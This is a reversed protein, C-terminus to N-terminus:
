HGKFYTVAALVGASVAVFWKVISMLMKGGKFMTVLESTDGAIQETLMSNRTLSEQVEKLDAELKDVRGELSM